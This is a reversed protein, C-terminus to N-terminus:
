TPSHLGIKALIFSYYVVYETNIIKAITLAIKIKMIALM